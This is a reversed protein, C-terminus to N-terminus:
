FFCNAVPNVSSESSICYTSFGTLRVFRTKCNTKFGSSKETIETDETADFATKLIIYGKMRSAIEVGYNMATRAGM